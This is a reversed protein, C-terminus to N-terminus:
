LADPGAITLWPESDFWNTLEIPEWDNGRLLLGQGDPLRGIEGPTLVRQRQTQYSVNDSHTPSSLFEQPESHGLSQSVVQRDYEGLALSVGELTKSDGIGTLILKTQFLSMFGDAAHEGWRERAQSFDQLGAVVQIGQGGAQSLLSPLDHIPAINPIEDIAFTMAPGANRTRTRRMRRSRRYVAHRIQELLGVILPACLAQYEESSTIYITDTSNAFADPDFNPNAASERVADSNYASLVGATASFISSKERSDTGDIGALVAVAIPADCDRLIQLAPELNKYLIWELVDGITLDAQNAAYLLPALLAQARETWHSENTTGAGVRTAATMARAMLLAEDYTVAAAVPSWSLRRVGAPVTETGSPDFLWAQGIESRAALTAEMVDPKTSASVLPGSAAMVLPILGGTTKGSQPPGLVLVAHKPAAIAWQGDERIGLYAGGGASEVRKRALAAPTPPPAVHNAGPGVRATRPNPHVPARPPRTLVSMLVMILLWGGGLVVATAILWGFLGHNGVGVYNGFVIRVLGLLFLLGIAGAITSPIHSDAQKAPPAKHQHSPGWDETIEEERQHQGGNGRSM